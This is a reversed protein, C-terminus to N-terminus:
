TPMLLPMLHRGALILGTVALGSLYWIRPAVVSGAEADPDGHLLASERRHQLFRHASLRLHRSAPATMPGRYSPEPRRTCRTACSLALPGM